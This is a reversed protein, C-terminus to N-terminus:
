GLVKVVAKQLRAWEYRRQQNWGSVSEWGSAEM